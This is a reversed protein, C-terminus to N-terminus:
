VLDAIGEKILKCGTEIDKLSSAFSIRLSSEKGFAAGPVVAVKKNELLYLALQNSDFYQKEKFNLRSLDLLIYFAGQPKFLQARDISSLIQLAM